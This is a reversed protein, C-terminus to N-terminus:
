IKHIKEGTLYELIVDEYKLVHINKCRACKFEYGEKTKVLYLKGCACRMQDDTKKLNQAREM